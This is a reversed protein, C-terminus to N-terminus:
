VNDILYGGDIPITVGTIFGAAQNSALFLAAGAMEGADGFRGFPTHDIIQQGRETLKGTADDEILLRRNQNAVIFGPAIANVRIGHPAYEKACAMTLNIVGAKAANYAWVGSLPVYSAMSAVNIISGGSGRAIWFATTRKTPVVLGAVLNLSLVEEFLAVDIDNFPGKGRNGGVGNLLVTPAGLAAETADLAADVAAEDGADARIGCLRERRGPDGGLQEIAADVTEQRRSWIAVRAGASLFADALALAITGGGGALAVVQDHLGFTKDLYSVENDGKDL